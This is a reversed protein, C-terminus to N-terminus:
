RGELLKEIPELISKFESMHSEVRRIGSIVSTHHGRGFMTCISQFSLNSHKRCLYYGALRPRKAYNHRSPGTIERWSVMSVEPLQQRILKINADFRERQLRAIQKEIQKKQRELSAIQGTLERATLLAAPVEEVEPEPVVDDPDPYVAALRSLSRPLRREMFARGAQSLNEVSDM